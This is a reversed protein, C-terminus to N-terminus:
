ARLQKFFKKLIKECEEGRIGGIVETKPHFLRDSYRSYGKKEDKAGYYVKGFQAWYCAGACMVCPELTVYLECGQLYKNGLANNASTIALIEAHATCDKLAESQNYARAVIRNECVVVAGVPVEGIEYAKQAEKLAEDMYREPSFVSLSM